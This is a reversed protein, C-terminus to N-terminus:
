DTMPRLFSIDVKVMAGSAAYYVNPRKFSRIVGIASITFTEGHKPMYDIMEGKAQTMDVFVTDGIQLFYPRLSEPDHAVISNSNHLWTVHVKDKSWHNRKPEVNRVVGIQGAAYGRKGKHLRVVKALVVYQGKEFEFPIVDGKIHWLNGM